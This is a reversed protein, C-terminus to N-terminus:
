NDKSKRSKYNHFWTLGAPLPNPFNEAILHQQGALLYVAGGQTLHYELVLLQTPLQVLDCMGGNMTLDEPPHAFQQDRPMSPDDEVQWKEEFGTDEHVKNM